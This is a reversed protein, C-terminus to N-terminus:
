SAKAALALDRTIDIHGLHNSAHDITVMLAERVSVGRPRGEGFLSQAPERREDLSGEPLAALAEGFRETLDRAKAILPAPEPGSAAFEGPRDRVIPQGCAIGLVWAEANGLTHAALVYISNAGPAAPRWNLAEEDLGALLACLRQLLLKLQNAYVALEDTM